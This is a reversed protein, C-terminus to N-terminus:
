TTGNNPEKSQSLIPTILITDPYSTEGARAAYHSWGSDYLFDAHVNGWVIWGKGNLPRTCVDYVNEDHTNKVLWFQM